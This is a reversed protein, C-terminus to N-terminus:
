WRMNSIMRPPTDRLRLGYRLHARVWLVSNEFRGEAFREPYHHYSGRPYYTERCPPADRFRGDPGIPCWKGIKENPVWAVGSRFCSIARHIAPVLVEGNTRAIGFREGDGIIATNEPCTLARRRSEDDLAREVDPAPNGNAYIIHTVKDRTIGFMAKGALRSASHRPQIRHPGLPLTFHGEKDIIGWARDNARRGISVVAHGQDFFRAWTFLRPPEFLSRGNTRIFTFAEQRKRKQSNRVGVLIPARCDLEFPTVVARSSRGYHFAHHFSVRDVGHKLTPSGDADTLFFSASRLMVRLGQPCSAVLSGEPHSTSVVPILEGNDFQYWIGDRKVRPLDGPEKPSEVKDFEPEIVVTGDSRIVGYKRAYSSGPGGIHAHGNGFDGLWDLQLPIAIEGNEDVAGWLGRRVVVARGDRLSRVNDFSPEVVWSGSDDMLGFPSRSASRSAWILSGGVDRQRRFWRFHQRHKTLRGEQRHFLRFADRPYFSYRAIDRGIEWVIESVPKDSRVSVLAVDDTFPIAREFRLPIVVTGDRDIVGLGESSAAEARAGRFDGVALFQPKIAFDGSPKIFGWLGEFRVAALGHHFTRAREFRRPIIDTGNADVYGCVGFVGGCAPRPQDAASAPDSVALSLFLIFANFTSRM